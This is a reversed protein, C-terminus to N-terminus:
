DVQWLRVIGDFHAAALWTGAPHWALEVLGEQDAEHTATFTRGPQGTKTHVLKIWAKRGGLAVQPHGPRYRVAYLKTGGDFELVHPAGKDADFVRLKRTKSCTALRAGDASFDLGGVFWRHAQLARLAKGTKLDWTRVWGESGGSALEARGPRFAVRLVNADGHGALQHRLAGTRADWLAVKGDRGGSALLAGDASFALVGAGSGQTEALVKGSTADWVQVGKRHAVALRTGDPSLAMAQVGRKPGPLHRLAEGKLNWLRVGDRAASFLTGDPSFAVAVVRGEHGTLRHTAGEAWAPSTFCLLLLCLRM